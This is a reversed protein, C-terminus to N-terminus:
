LELVLGQDGDLPLASCDVTEGERTVRTCVAIRGSGFQPLRLTQAAGTLNLAVLRRQDGLQRLYVYCGAPVGDVVRYTGSHVAPTERRYALLRRYFSLFSDPDDQQVAVNVTEYDPAVPLWTEPATSFGANASSDWQMPTRVEDRNLGPTNRGQPDKVQDEPIPVNVMGIEEGYYLTPTGRLTLLLMAAVRAQEKGVRSALRERDHNGLVYNPWGYSPMAADYADVHARIAAADWPITILSFNFPLHLEDGTGSGERGHYAVLREVPLDYAVEGILVREEFEDFVQRFQRMYEHTEPGQESYVRLLSWVPNDGPRWDPNPPNDRFQKDKLIRDIVDVRFGDVGRRLWFRIVAFMAEKVAPNRWNLEPQEPVFNHMYYQGTAEDFTWAPGGFYALWNNPPGGDPAPDKWIYWDRRPNDRSARSEQFWPHQDSTHNPVLDLIIRLGRAHAEALLQDFDALTGYDPHIDRYDAVDYGFDAMPSPFMPSFWIADVGLEVLHELRALVGRLDGIGDGSADMFSRPYIQYIVGRQWWMTM